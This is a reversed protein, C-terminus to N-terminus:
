SIALRFFPLQYFINLIPVKVNGMANCQMSDPDNSLAPYALAILCYSNTPLFHGIWRNSSSKTEKGILAVDSINSM